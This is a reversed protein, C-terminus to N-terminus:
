MVGEKVNERSDTRDGCQPVQCGGPEPRRGCSSGLPGTIKMGRAHGEDITAKLLDRSIQMYAKLSTSGQDAWYAVHRRAEDAGKLAHMQLFPSPGNVYPATADIAPGALGGAAIRRSRNIDMSGNVTG